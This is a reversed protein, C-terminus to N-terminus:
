ALIQFEVPSLKVTLGGESPIKDRLSDEHSVGGFRNKLCYAFDDKYFTFLLM